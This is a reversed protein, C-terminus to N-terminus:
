HRTNAVIWENMVEVLALEQTWYKGKEFKFEGKDYVYRGLRGDVITESPFDIRYFISTEIIYFQDDRKDKLLDVALIRNKPFSDKLKKALLMAEEPISKYIEIGSGSARFDDQPVERYYGFYSNGVIIIRLDYKADSIFEQFYVYDKQKIYSWYTGLGNEFIKSCVAKAKKYNKILKVGQSGSGNTLKSVIPYKCNKIYELTEDKSNSIFTKIMPLENIQGLYYQNIKDEYFWIEDYSPLCIKNLGKELIWIKSRAQEQSAPDSSTRWIVVDINKAKEIFDSRYVDYFDYNINNNKLFREYKTWYATPNDCEKVLGVYPKKINKPWNMIVKNASDISLDEDSGIDFDLELKDYSTKHKVMKCKVFKYIRMVYPIKALKNKIYKKKIKNM